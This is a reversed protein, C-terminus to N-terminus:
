PSEWADAFLTMALLDASGGPSLRREVFARHIRLADDRWRPAGVGGRDLFARAARQAYALGDPGGRHLLNTDGLAAVLAFCCQVRAADGSARLSAAATACPPSAPATSPRSARPPRQVLVEPATSAARRPAM